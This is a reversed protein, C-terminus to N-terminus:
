GVAGLVVGAVASAVILSLLMAFMAALKTSPSLRMVWM